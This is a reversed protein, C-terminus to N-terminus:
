FNMMMLRAYCDLTARPRGCLGGRIRKITPGWESVKSAWGGLIRRWTRYGANKAREDKNRGVMCKKKWSRKLCVFIWFLGYFCVNGM